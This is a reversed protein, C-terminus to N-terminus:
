GKFLSSPSLPPTDLQYLGLSPGVFRFLIWGGIVVFISAYAFKNLWFLLGKEGVYVEAAKESLTMEEWAKHPPPPAVGAQKQQQQQQRAQNRSISRYRLNLKSPAQRAATSRNSANEGGGDRDGRKSSNSSIDSHRSGSVGDAAAAAPNVSDDSTPAPGGTSLSATRFSVTRPSPLPRSFPNRPDLPLLCPHRRLPPSLLKADMEESPEATRQM